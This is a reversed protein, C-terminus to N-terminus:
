DLLSERPPQKINLVSHLSLLKCQGMFKESSHECDLPRSKGNNGLVKLHSADDRITVAMNLDKLRLFQFAHGTLAVADRGVKERTEVRMTCFLGVEQRGRSM